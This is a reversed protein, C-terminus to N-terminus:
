VSSSSIKAGNTLRWSAAATNAPDANWLLYGRWRSKAARTQLQAHQSCSQKCKM